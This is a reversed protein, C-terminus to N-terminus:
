AYLKTKYLAKTTKSRSRKDPLLWFGVDSPQKDGRDEALLPFLCLKENDRESRRRICFSLGGVCRDCAVMRQDATVVCAHMTIRAACSKQRRLAIEYWGPGLPNRNAWAALRDKLILSLEGFQKEATGDWAVVNVLDGYKDADENRPMHTEEIRSQTNRPTRTEGIRPRTNRNEPQIDRSRKLATFQTTVNENLLTFKGDMDIGMNQFGANVRRDVTKLANGLQITKQELDTGMTQFGANLRRDITELAGGLQDTKQGIDNSMKQLGGSLTSDVNQMATGLQVCRQGVDNGLDQFGVSMNNDLTMLAGGIRYSTRAIDNGVSQFGQEVRSDVNQLADEIQEKTQGVDNGIRQFGVNLRCDITKMAAGLQNSKQMLTDNSKELGTVLREQAATSTQVTEILTTMESKSMRVSKLTHDLLYQLREPVHEYKKLHEVFPQLMARLETSESKTADQETRVADRETRVADRETRVADRETRAADRETRAADRETRATDRETKLTQVMTRLRNMEEIDAREKVTNRFEQTIADTHGALSRNLAGTQFLVTDNFAATQANTNEKLAATHGNLEERFVKAQAGFKNNITDAHKKLSKKITSAQKHLSTKMSTGHTELSIQLAATQHDMKSNTTTAYTGLSTELTTTQEKFQQGVFAEYDVFKTNFGAEQEDIRSYIGNSHDEFRERIDDAHGSLTQRFETVQEDLKDHLKTSHGELKQGIETTQVALRANVNDGQEGLQNCINDHHEKFSIDVAKVAGAVREVNESLPQLARFGSDTATQIHKVTGEIDNFSSRSSEAYTELTSQVGDVANLVKGAQEGQRKFEFVTDIRLQQTDIQINRTDARIQQTGQYVANYRADLGRASTRFSKVIHGSANQITGVTKKIDVLHQSTRAEANSLHEDLDKYQKEAGEALADISAPLDQRMFTRESDYEQREWELTSKTINLDAHAAQLKAASKQKTLANQLQKAHLQDKTLSIRELQAASLGHPNDKHVHHNFM